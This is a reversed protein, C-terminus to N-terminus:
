RALEPLPPCVPSRLPEWTWWGSKGFNKLYYTEKQKKRLLYKPSDLGYIEMPLGKDNNGADLLLFDPLVLAHKSDYRLPKIFERGEEVLREALRCEYTSDVPIYHDSTHMVVMDQIRANVRERAVARTSMEIMMCAIQRQTSAVPNSEPMDTRLRFRRKANDILASSAWLRLGAKEGGRLTVAYDYVSQEVGALEGLVILRLGEERASAIIETNRAEQSAEAIVLISELTAARAIILRGARERLLRALGKWRRKGAFRPHWFNIEADEWLYHLLGLLTIQAQGARRPGSDAARDQPVPSVGEGRRLGFSLRLKIRGQTLEQIVGGAYAASGSFERIPSFFECDPRHLPGTNPYRAITYLRSLRRIALPLELDTRCHCMGRGRPSRNYATELAKRWAVGQARREPSFKQDDVSLWYKGTM